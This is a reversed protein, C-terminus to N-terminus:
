GQALKTDVDAVAKLQALKEAHEALHDPSLHAYRRVMEASEWGGLEQLAQLPTGNQVHWSAWTHRLDHWRFDSIGVQRLVARWTKTGAKSVPRGRFTFVRTPHKGVQERLVVMAEANLPVAIARRGKAQDAHVWARRAELDVQSWELRTVNSERLGTSLTFRAMAAIHGPLANLLRDAEERTIWRVRRKPEPLMRVKPIRDVWEWDDRAARLIARLVQLMRNVTANSVNDNLRRQTLTDVVDRTIEDLYREGIYGHLIRLLRKDESHNAKHRKERLWRVVADKWRRRPKDGPKQVRWLESKLQDEYEKARLRDETGTSQRIRGGNPATFRTWWIESNNRRYLAM